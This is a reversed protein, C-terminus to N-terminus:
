NTQIKIAFGILVDNSTNFPTYFSNTNLFIYSQEEEADYRKDVLEVGHEKGVRSGALCNRLKGRENENVDAVIIETMSYKNTHASLGNFTQEKFEYMGFLGLKHGQYPRGSKTSIMLVDTIGTGTYDGYQKTLIPPLNNGSFGAFNGKTDTHLAGEIQELSGFYAPSSMYDDVSIGVDGMLIGVASNRDITLYYEIPLWGWDNGTSTDISPAPYKYWSWEPLNQLFKYGGKWGEETSTSSEDYTDGHRWNIFYYNPDDTGTGIYKPQDFNLYYGDNKGLIRNTYGLDIELDVILVTGHVVSSPLVIVSTDQAIYFETVAVKDKNNTQYFNNKKGEIALRMQGKLKYRVQKAETSAEPNFPLYIGITGEPVVDPDSAHTIMNSTGGATGDDCTIKMKNVWEKEIECFSKLVIQPSDNLLAKFAPDDLKSKLHIFDAEWNPPNIPNDQPNHWFDPYEYVVPDPLITWTATPDAGNQFGMDTLDKGVEGGSLVMTITSDKGYSDKNGLDLDLFDKWSKTLSVQTLAKDPQTGGAAFITFALKSVASSFTVKAADSPDIATATIINIEVGARFGSFNLVLDLPSVGTIKNLNEELAEGIGPTPSFDIKPFILKWNNTYNLNDGVCFIKALDYIVDDPNTYGHM